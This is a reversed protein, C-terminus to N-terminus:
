AKLFLLFGVHILEPFLPTCVFASLTCESGALLTAVTGLAHWSVESADGGVGGECGTCFVCTFILLESASCFLWDKASSAFFFGWMWFIWPQPFAPARCGVSGLVAAWIHQLPKPYLCARPSSSSLVASICLSMKIKDMWLRFEGGQVNQSRYCVIPLENGWM